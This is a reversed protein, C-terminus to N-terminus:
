RECYRRWDMPSNEFNILGRSRRGEKLGETFIDRVYQVRFGLRSFRSLFHPRKAMELLEMVSAYWGQFEACDYPKSKLLQAEEIKQRLHAILQQTTDNSKEVM